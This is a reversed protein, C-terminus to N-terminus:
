GTIVGMWRWILVSFIFTCPVLLVFGWEVLFLDRKTPTNPRRLVMVIFCGWYAAMPRWWLEFLFGGDIAIAALLGTGIQLLLAVKLASQYDKSLSLNMGENMRENAFSLIAKHLGWVLYLRFSSVCSGFLTSVM